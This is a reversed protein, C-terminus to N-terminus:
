SEPDAAGAAKLLLPTVAAPARILGGAAARARASMKKLTKRLIDILKAEDYEPHRRAFDALYYELFVLGAVDELLQVDPHRKIGEKRLLTGVREIASEDYGEARLIEAAAEAHFALLRTRWQRYGAPTRPYTARPIEWRRIHQARVALRVPESAEPAFRELMETMRRAYALEKPESVGNVIERNPDLANAADLRAIADAYRRADTITNSERGTM